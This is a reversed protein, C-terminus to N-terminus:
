IKGGQAAGCAHANNCGSGRPCDSDEDCGCLNMGSQLYGSCCQSASTASEDYALCQTTVSAVSYLWCYDEDNEHGALYGACTMKDQKTEITTNITTIDGQIDGIDGVITDIEDHMVDFEDAILGITPVLDDRGELDGIGSYSGPVNEIGVLGVSDGNLETGAANTAVIAPVYVDDETGDNDFALVKDTRIKDQKTTDVYYKSTVTKQDIEDQTAMAPMAMLAAILSTTILKKKM